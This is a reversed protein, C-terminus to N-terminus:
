RSERFLCDWACGEQRTKRNVQSEAPLGHKVPCGNGPREDWGPRCTEGSSQSMQHIHKEKEQEFKLRVTGQSSQNGKAGEFVSM